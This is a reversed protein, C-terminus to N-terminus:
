ESGEAADLTAAFARAEAEGRTKGQGTKGYNFRSFWLGWRYSVFRLNDQNAADCWAEVAALLVEAKTFDRAVQGIHEGCDCLGGPPLQWNIGKHLTSHGQPCEAPSDWAYDGLGQADLAKAVRVNLALKEADTM